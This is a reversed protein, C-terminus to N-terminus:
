DESKAVTKVFAKYIALQKEAPLTNLTDHNLLEQAMIQISM